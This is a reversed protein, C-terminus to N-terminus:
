YTSDMTFPINLSYFKNNQRCGVYFRNNEIWFVSAGETVCKQKAQAKTIHSPKLDRLDVELQRALRLSKQEREHEISSTSTSPNM